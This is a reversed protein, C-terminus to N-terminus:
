SGSPRALMLSCAKSMVWAYERAAASYGRDEGTPTEPGSSPRPQNELEAKRAQKRAEKREQKRSVAREALRAARQGLQCAGALESSQGGQSGEDDPAGLGGILWRAHGLCADRLPSAIEPALPRECIARHFAEDIRPPSALWPDLDLGPPAHAALAAVARQAASRVVPEREAVRRLLAPLALAAARRAGAPADPAALRGLLECALHRVVTDPSLLSATAAPAAAGARPGIARLALAARRRRHPRVAPQLEVVLADVEADTACGSLLHAATTRLSPSPDDLAATLLARRAAASGAAMAGLADLATARVMMSGDLGMALVADLAPAGRASLRTLAETAASRVSWSVDRLSALLAAAAPGPADDAHNWESVTGLAV